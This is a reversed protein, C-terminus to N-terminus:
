GARVPREVELEAYDGDPTRVFRRPRTGPDEDHPRGLRRCGLYTALYALLPGAFILVRLTWVVEEIRLHFFRAAMDDMATLLLLAWFTLGAAGVGARVPTERARQLVHHPAHDHTFRRELWPYAATLSFIVVPLVVGPFFVAPVTHHLARIEWPPWLRLAGELWM